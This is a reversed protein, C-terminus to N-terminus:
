PVTARHNRDEGLRPDADLPSDAGLWGGAGLPSRSWGRSRSWYPRPNRNWGRSRSWYPRPNRNWGRSRSWYPRPNRSHSIEWCVVGKRRKPSPSESGSYRPELSGRDRHRYSQWRHYGSPNTELQGQHMDEEELSNVDETEEGLVSVPLEPPGTEELVQRKQLRPLWIDCIRESHLLQHIFENTRMSEFDGNRNQVRLNRDDNYLPELYEHFDRATGTLRMYLAGLVRAYEFDENRIFEIVVVKHPQMQLMKLALCLFPTPQSNPGFVGGVSTLDAARETLLEETLGCCEEKWYKSEYIRIQIIKEVLYQLDTGQTHQADNVPSNDM